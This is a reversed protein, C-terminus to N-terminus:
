NKTKPYLNMFQNDTLPLLYPQPEEESNHNKKRKSRTTFQSVPMGIFLHYTNSKRKIIGERLEGKKGRIEKEKRSRFCIDRRKRIIKKSWKKWLKFCKKRQKKRERPLFNASKCKWRVKLSFERLCQVRM